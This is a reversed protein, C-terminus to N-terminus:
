FCVALGIWRCGPQKRYSNTLQTVETRIQFSRAVTDVEWGLAQTKHNQSDNAEERTNKWILSTVPHGYTMILDTPPGDNSDSSHLCPRHVVPPTHLERGSDLEPVLVTSQIIANKRPPLPQKRM